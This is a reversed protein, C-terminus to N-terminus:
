VKKYRLSPMSRGPNWFTNGGTKHGQEFKTGRGGVTFYIGRKGPNPSSGNKNQQNRKVGAVTTYGSEKRAM